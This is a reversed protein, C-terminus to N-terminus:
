MNGVSEVRIIQENRVVARILDGEKVSEYIKRDTAYRQSEGNACVILIEYIIKGRNDELDTKKNIKGEVTLTRYRNKKIMLYIFWIVLVAIIIYVAIELGFPMDGTYRRMFNEYGMIM